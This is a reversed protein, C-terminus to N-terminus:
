QNVSNVLAVTQRDAGKYWPVKQYEDRQAPAVSTTSSLAATIRNAAHVVREGM